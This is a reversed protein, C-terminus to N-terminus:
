SKLLIIFYLIFGVVAVLGAILGFIVSNSFNPAGEVKSNVMKKYGNLRWVMLPVSLFVLSFVPQGIDHAASLYLQAIAAFISMVIVSTLLFSSKM